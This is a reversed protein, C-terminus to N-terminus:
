LRRRRIFVIIGAAFVAFPILTLLLFVMWQAAASMVLPQAALSRSPISIMEIEPQMCSLANSLFSQNMLSSAGMLDDSMMIGASCVFVQGGKDNGTYEALAALTFPRDTDDETKDYDDYQTEDTLVKAYSTDRSEM